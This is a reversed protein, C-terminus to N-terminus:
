RIIHPAIESPKELGLMAMTVDMERKIMAFIADAGTEGGTALGWLPLRGAMVAKAGLGVYKLVDSGRQVGSDALVTLKEGVADAIDPLVRATTPASDLNRGGHTSVVIADAGLKQALLADAVSLLGKIVLEGRWQQRLAVFDDWNLREELAVAESSPAGTIAVQHEKPYHGYTPMGTTRLYALIVGFLWGPHLAIDLGARFTPTMPMAFGNRTNYERNPGVPTDATLVLTTVGSAWVRDLLERTLKRDRWMYLQFWIDADSAGARIDEVATISQTSVCVPIGAKMAARGLKVEGNHSVLGALATPAVILPLALEKGMINTTFDRAGHGTLAQPVIQIADLSDRLARLAVENETGRDIYEFLGKPLRRQALARFDYFNQPQM